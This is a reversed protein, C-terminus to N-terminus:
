SAESRRLSLVSVPRAFSRGPDGNARARGRLWHRLDSASLAKSVYFGQGIDCGFETLRQWTEPSEIGEAVVLLGLNRALEITSRVIVDDQSNAIMGQVFSRDIKISTVPLRALYALSSYGTGFDDVTIRLGLASLSNLVSITHEPDRLMSEETVELELFAPDVDLRHLLAEIEHVITEDRLDKPSLNVAIPLEEGADQWRRLQNIAHDLVFSSLARGLGTREALPVFEGASVIGRRLHEWRVLAEVGVVAGTFDVKPQYHLTLEKSQIARRLEGALALQEASYHDYESRYEALGLNGEKAWYMAVDARQLLRDSSEGDRPYLAIGLSGRVDLSLDNIAFPQVLATLIAEGRTRAEVPSSVRPLLVAFEDGGLRALLADPDIADRLRQSLSCLLSDGNHHGLTDNIEKFRDLDFLLVALQHRGRSADELARNLETNFLVRNPLGTLSDHNALHENTAAHRTLEMILRGNRLAVSAQNTFTEFLEADATTFGRVDGARNAVMLTGIARGNDLLPAVIADRAGIDRLYDRLPTSTERRTLLLTRQESAVRAWIGRTPLLEIPQLVVEETPIPPSVSRSAPENGDGFLILEALGARMMEKAQRMLTQVLSDMHDSRQVTQSSEYLSKLSEHRQHASAASVYSIYLVGILTAVLWLAPVYLWALAVATLGITANVLNAFTSRGLITTLLRPRKGDTLSIAVFIMLNSFVSACLVAVLTASWVAVGIPSSAGDMSGFVLLALCTGVATQGLNFALKIPSQRRWVVLAIATGALQAGVLTLPSVFHLGIVFPIEALSFSQAERRFQLHVVFLEALLFLLGLGWWPLLLPADFPPAEPLVLWALLVFLLAFCANL